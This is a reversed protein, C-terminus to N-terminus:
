PTGAAPGTRVEDDGIDGREGAGVVKLLDLEATQLAATLTLAQDPHVAVVVAFDAGSGFGGADDVIDEIVAAKLVARTVAGQGTTRVTAVIDVVDGRRLQGGLAHARSVPVTVLRRPPAGEEPLLAALPLLEGGGIDRALVRGAPQSRGADLYRVADGGFLRVRVASLDERLLTTGAPLPRNVAWVRTTDDAAGVVRAGAVISGLILLVGLLARLDLRRAPQLRTATPSSLDLAASM